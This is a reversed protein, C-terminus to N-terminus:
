GSMGNLAGKERSVSWRFVHFIFPFIFPIGPFHSLHFHRSADNFAGATKVTNSLSCNEKIACSNLTHNGYYIVDILRM